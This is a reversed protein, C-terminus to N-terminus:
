ELCLSRMWPLNANEAGHMLHPKPPLRVIYEWRIRQINTSHGSDTPVPGGAFDLDDIAVPAHCMDSQEPQRMPLPAPADMHLGDIGQTIRLRAADHQLGRDVRGLTQDAKDPVAIGIGGVNGRHDAASLHADGLGAVHISRQALGVADPDTRDLFYSGRGIRSLLERRLVCIPVSLNRAGLNAVLEALDDALVLEVRFQDPGVGDVVASCFSKPLGISFLHLVKNLLQRVRSPLNRAINSCQMCTWTVTDCSARVCSTARM